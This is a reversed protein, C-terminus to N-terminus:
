HNAVNSEIIKRMTEYLTTM